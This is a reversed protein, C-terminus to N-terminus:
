SGSPTMRSEPGVDPNELSVFRQSKSFRETLLTTKGSQRLRPGTILLASFSKMAVRIANELTRPIM